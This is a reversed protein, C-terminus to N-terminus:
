WDENPIFTSDTGQRTSEDYGRWRQWFRAASPKLVWRTVPTWTTTRRHFVVDYFTRGFFSFQHMSPNNQADLLPQLLAVNVRRRRPVDVFWSDSLIPIHIRGDNSQPGSAGVRHLRFAAEPAGVGLQGHANPQSLLLPKGQHDPFIRQVFAHGLSQLSPQLSTGFPAFLVYHGVPHYGNEVIGDRGSGPDNFSIWTHSWIARQGNHCM